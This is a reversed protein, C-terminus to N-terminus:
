TTSFDTPNFDTAAFDPQNAGEDTVFLAMFVEEHDNEKELIENLDKIKQPMSM